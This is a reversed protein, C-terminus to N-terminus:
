NNAILKLHLQLSVYGYWVNAIFKFRIWGYLCKKTTTGNQRVFFLYFLFFYYLLRVDVVVIFAKVSYLLIPFKRVFIATLSYLSLKQLQNIIVRGVRGADHASTWLM